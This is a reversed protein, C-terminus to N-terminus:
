ILLINIILITGPIEFKYTTVTYIYGLIPLKGGNNLKKGM